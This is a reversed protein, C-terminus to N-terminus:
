TPRTMGGRREVLVLIHREHRWPLRAPRARARTYKADEKLAKM